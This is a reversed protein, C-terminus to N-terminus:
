NMGQDAPGFHIEDLFAATAEVEEVWQLGYQKVMAKRHIAYAIERTELEQHHTVLQAELVAEKGAWHDPENKHHETVALESAVAFDIVAKRVLGIEPRFSVALDPKIASDFEADVSALEADMHSIKSRLIPSKAEAHQQFTQEAQAFLFLNVTEEATELKDGVMLAAYDSDSLQNLLWGITSLRPSPPKDNAAVSYALALALLTVVGSCTLNSLKKM